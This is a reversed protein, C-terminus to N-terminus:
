LFQSDGVPPVNVGRKCLSGGECRQPCPSRSTSTWSKGTRRIDNYYSNLEFNEWGLTIWPKGRRLHSVWFKSGTRRDPFTVCAGNIRGGWRVLWLAGRRSESWDPALHCGNKCGLLLNRSIWVNKSNDPWSHNRAYFCLSTFESNLPSHSQMFLGIIGQTQIRNLQCIQM